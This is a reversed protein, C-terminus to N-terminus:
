TPPWPRGWRNKDASSGAVAPSPDPEGPRGFKTQFGFRPPSNARRDLPTQDRNLQTWTVAEAATPARWADPLMKALTRNPASLHIIVFPRRKRVSSNLCLTPRRHPPRHRRGDWLSGPAQGCVSCRRRVDQQNRCPSDRGHRVSANRLRCSPMGAGCDTKKRM